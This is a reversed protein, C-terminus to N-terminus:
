ISINLSGLNNNIKYLDLENSTDVEFFHKSYSLVIVKVIVLNSM